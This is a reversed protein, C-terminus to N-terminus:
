IGSAAVVATGSVLDHAREPWLWLSFEELTMKPKFVPFQLKSEIRFSNQTRGELFHHTVNPPLIRPV